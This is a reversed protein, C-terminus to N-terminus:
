NVVKLTRGFTENTDLGRCYTKGNSVVCGKANGM